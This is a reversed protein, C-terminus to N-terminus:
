FAQQMLLLDNIQDKSETLIVQMADIIQPLINM